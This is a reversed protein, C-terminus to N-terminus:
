VSAAAVLLPAGCLSISTAESVGIRNIAALYFFQYVILALGLLAMITFDRKTTAFLDRGLARWAMVICFPSAIVARLWTVSVADLDSQQYTYKAAVGITGWILGTGVLMMFGFSPRRGELPKM